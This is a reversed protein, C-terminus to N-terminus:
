GYYKVIPVFSAAELSAGGVLAGDIDQYSMYEKINGPKVSGGYLIRIADAAREGYMEALTARILRIVENADAGSSSRGTGIAWIPEYAVVVQTAKEGLGALGTRVQGEVFAQTEGAERQALSEGVCVIPTLGHTLAARTKQNVSSNTEHFHERRESHGIIVYTCGIDTLMAPAVEGTYAGEDLWFVDQAGLALRSGSLLPAVASLATFPPCIVVEVREERGVAAVLEGVLHRAAPITKYMKWNGAIIPKRM